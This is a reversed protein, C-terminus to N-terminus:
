LVHDIRDVGWTGSSLVWWTSGGDVPNLNLPGAGGAPSRGNEPTTRGLARRRGSVTRRWSSAFPAANKSRSRVSSALAEPSANEAAICAAPNVVRLRGPLAEEVPQEVADALGQRRHHEGALRRRRGPCDRSAISAAPSAAASPSAAITWGNASASNSYCRAAPRGTTSAVVVGYSRTLGSASRSPRSSTIAVRYPTSASPVYSPESTPGNTHDAALQLRDPGPRGLM